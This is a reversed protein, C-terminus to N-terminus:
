FLVSSCIFRNLTYYLSTIIISFFFCSLFLFFFCALLFFSGFFTCFFSTLVFLIKKSLVNIVKTISTSYTKISSINNLSINPEKETSQFRNLINIELIIKPKIIVAQVKLNFSIQLFVTNIHM